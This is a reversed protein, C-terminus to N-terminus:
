FSVNAFAGPCSAMWPNLVALVNGMQNTTATNPIYLETTVPTKKVYQNDPSQYPVNHEIVLSDYTEDKVVRMSPIRRPWAIESDVGRYAQAYKEKDRVEQWTGYGPTPPTTYVVTTATTFNNSTLFVKFSVQQYKDIADVSDTVHYPLVRGTLTMYTTGDVADVRRHTDANIKAVFLDLLSAVTATTCVVRYTATVQGPHERTDTYVIRIVYETGVVPTLSPTITVVQATAAAYAEGKYSIVDSGVIPDSLILRRVGTVTTGSYETVYSYTDATAEAIYITDSDAITIGATALKKDKDLVIVEGDAPGNTGTYLTSSTLLATRSIDKGILVKNVRNLM